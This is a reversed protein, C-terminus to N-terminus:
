KPLTAKWFPLTKLLQDATNLDGIEELGDILM